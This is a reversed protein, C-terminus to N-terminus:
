AGTSPSCLTRSFLLYSAASGYLLLFPSRSYSPVHCELSIRANGTYLIVAKLASNREITM